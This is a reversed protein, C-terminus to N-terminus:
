FVNTSLFKLTNDVIEYCERYVVHNKTIIIINVFTFECVNVDIDVVREGGFNFHNNYYDRIQKKTM